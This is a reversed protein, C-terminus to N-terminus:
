PNRALQQAQAHKYALEIGQSAHILKINENAELQPLVKELYRLTAKHPHGIGVALGTQRAKQLLSQFANHIATEEQINDLFVDRSLNQIGYLDATTAAVTKNSTRSDVFFLGHERMAHMVLGMYDAQQTLESGMHNNLGRAHPIAQIGKNLTSVFDAYNQRPSLTGPESSRRHISTMPAHIMVEKGSFHAYNAIAKANPSHPLVSCTVAGSLDVTRMGADFSYGLDDIILVISAQQSHAISAFLSLGLAIIRLCIM